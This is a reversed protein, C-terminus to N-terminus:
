GGRMALNAVVNVLAAPEIPKVLHEQYGERLARKRDEPRAFATIAAAPTRGGRDPDLHRIERILQYGDKDPMGIDCLLVDPHAREIERLAEDASGVTIVEVEYEELLRMVIERAEQEDDVVLVKLGRIRTGAVTAAPAGSEPRVVPVPFRVTFAAGRNEGASAVSVSGGHLEVIHKVIALGLGLGGHRRRTSADAQRFRDFVYPLFDASIGVGTDTVVIEASSDARRLAVEVRGGRPTFKIANTLLNLVVQQLRLADGRVQAEPWDLRTELHVGKADVAPRVSAVAHTVVEALRVSGLDVHLKGSAAASMDLLDDIMRVLTRANRGIVEMARKRADEDLGTKQLMATWGLVANLPTRLEHSLTSVFEDKLRAAREAEARAARESELLMEREAEARKRKTIDRITGTFLRGHDLVTESVALDAPFETGDKRLCRVERGIGIIRREGTRRYREIYSDHESRYPEPMLMRVNKGIVEEPPYGFLQEAAPNFSTVAGREDITIIGDVADRIIALMREEGARRGREAAVRASIDHNAELVIGPGRREKVLVWRSELILEHGSRAVQLLEGAWTGQEAVAAEVTAADPAETPRTGLLDHVMQGVAEARSWGYLDEAGRNWYLIEGGGLRWVIIADHVQDLLAARRRAENESGRGKISRWVLSVALVAALLWGIAPVILTVV